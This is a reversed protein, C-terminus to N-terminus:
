EGSNHKNGLKNQLVNFEPTSSSNLQIHTKNINKTTGMKVMGVGAFSQSKKDQTPRTTNNKLYALQKDDHSFYDNEVLQLHKKKFSKPGTQSRKRKTRETSKRNEKDNEFGLVQPKKQNM